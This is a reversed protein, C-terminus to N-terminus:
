RVRRKDKKTPADTDYQEDEQEQDGGFDELNFEDALKSSQMSSAAQAAAKWYGGDEGSESKDSQLRKAAAARYGEEEQM